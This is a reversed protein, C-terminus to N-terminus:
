YNLFQQPQNDFFSRWVMRALNLILKLRSTKYQQPKIEIGEGRLLQIVMKLDSLYPKYVQEVVVRPLKYLGTNVTSDNIIRLSHFHFFIAEGYPFRIANWPALAWEKNQLVHVENEFIDPWLDLYKQDGFKGDEFRAYCWELCRTEWWHRVVEGSDRLFIIFQVCFHGSLASKDYEPAYAHNTILVSKRSRDFEQYIKIPDKKFWLDADVYTVRSISADAEFVFRPAFPTLTWCYEGITREVKVRRLDETEIQSLKLLRVNPLNLGFLISHVEDDVCLIWLTYLGIHRQMSTYLALGQPLFLSDFLTVFHEM